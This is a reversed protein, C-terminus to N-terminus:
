PVLEGRAGQLSGNTCHQFRPVGYIPEVSEVPSLPRAPYQHCYPKLLLSRNKIRHYLFTDYQRPVMLLRSRRPKLENTIGITPNKMWTTIRGKSIVEVVQNKKLGKILNLDVSVEIRTMVEM